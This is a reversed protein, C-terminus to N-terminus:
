HCHLLRKLSRTSVGDHGSSNKSVINNFIKEVDPTSICEFDISSIVRQNLFSSMTKTGNYEINNSLKAGVSAFFQNLTNSTETKDEISEDTLAFIAPFREQGQM